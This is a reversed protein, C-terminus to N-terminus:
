HHTRPDPKPTTKTTSDPTLAIQAQLRAILREPLALLQKAAWISGRRFNIEDLSMQPNDAIAMAAAVVESQMTERLLSWSPSQVFDVLTKLDTEAKKLDPPSLHATPKSTPAPTSKTM